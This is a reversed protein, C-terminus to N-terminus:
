IDEKKIDLQDARCAPATIHVTTTNTHSIEGLMKLSPVSLHALYVVNDWALAWGQALAWQGIKATRNNKLDEMYSGVKSFVHTYYILLLDASGM